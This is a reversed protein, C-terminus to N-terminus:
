ESIGTVTCRWIHRDPLLLEYQDFIPAAAGKNPKLLRATYDGPLFTPQYYRSEYLFGCNLELKKQNMVTDIYLENGCFGQNNCYDRIHIASVHVNVPYVVGPKAYPPQQGYRVKQACLLPLGALLLLAILSQKM